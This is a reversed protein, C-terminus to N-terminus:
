RDNALNGRAEALLQNLTAKAAKLMELQNNLNTKLEGFEYENKMMIMTLEDVKDKFEGWMLSLKDHLLACDPVMDPNCALSAEEPSAGDKVPEAAAKSPPPQAATSNSPPAGRQLLSPGDFSHLLRNIERKAAPTLMKRYKQNAEQDHFQIM